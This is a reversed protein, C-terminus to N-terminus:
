HKKTDRNSKKIWGNHTYKWLINDRQKQFMINGEKLVYNLREQTTAQSLISKTNSDLYIGLQQLTTARGTTIFQTFADNAQDASYGIREFNDAISFSGEQATKSFGQSTLNAALRIKSMYEQISANQEAKTFDGM